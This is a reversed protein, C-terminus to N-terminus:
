LAFDIRGPQKIVQHTRRGYRLPSQSSWSVGQAHRSSRQRKLEPRPNTIFIALPDRGNVNHEFRITAVGRRFVLDEFHVDLVSELQGVRWRHREMASANIQEFFM